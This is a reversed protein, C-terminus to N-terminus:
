KIKKWPKDIVIACCSIMTGSEKFRGAEIDKVEAKKSKIWKRFKSETENDSLKWHKSAVSVMRGGPKLCDYMKRIHFVDQNKSFPPNALIRDFAGHWEKGIELFNGCIFTSNVIKSLVVQNEPMLECCDVVSDPLTRHIANVIAGQGASPELISYGPKIEALSVLWDSIDSPTPFYQFEKKINVSEGSTLRDIFPQADSAFVFTNKKYKGGANLLAKKVEAYNPLMGDSIPPLFLTNGDVRCKKLSEILQSM